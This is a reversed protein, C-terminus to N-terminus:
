ILIRNNGRDNKKHLKDQIYGWMFHMEETTTHESELWTEPTPWIKGPGCGVVSIVLEKIQRKLMENRIAAKFLERQDLMAFAIRIGNHYAWWKAMKLKNLMAIKMMLVNIPIEEPADLLEDAFHRGTKANLFEFIEDETKNPYIEELKQTVVDWIKQTDIANFSNNITGYFGFKKNIEVM